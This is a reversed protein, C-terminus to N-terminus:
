FNLSHRVFVRQSLIVVPRATRTGALKHDQAAQRKRVTAIAIPHGPAGLRGAPPGAGEFFCLQGSGCRRVAL